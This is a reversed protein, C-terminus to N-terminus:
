AIARFNCHNLRYLLSEMKENSIVQKESLLKVLGKTGKVAVGIKDAVTRGPDEDVCCFYSRGSTKNRLGLLLVQIEGDHLKPYRKGFTETEESTVDKNVTIIGSELAKSLIAITQKRGNEIEKFVALPIVLTCDNKALRHLLEPENLEKESYFAILVSADLILLM